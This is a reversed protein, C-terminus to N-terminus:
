DILLKKSYLGNDNTLVRLVYYGKPLDSIDIHSDGISEKEIQKVFSGTITYISIQLITEDCEIAFYDTAPNPYVAIAANAVEHEIGVKQEPFAAVYSYSSNYTATMSSQTEFNILTGNVFWGSCTDGNENIPKQLILTDILTGYFAYAELYKMSNPLNVWELSSNNYFAMGNVKEVGENLTLEALKNNTFTYDYVTNIGGPITLSTLSNNAFALPKVLASDPLKLYSINNNKFASEEILKMGLPLIVTDIKNNNFASVGISVLSDPFVVKGILNNGFAMASISDTNKPIVLEEIMNDFFAQMGIYETSVPLLLRTIGCSAFAGEAFVKVGEPIFDVVLSSGGYGTVVTKNLTGDTNVAYIIGNTAEGNVTAIKNNNFVSTGLLVSGPITIDTINNSWFAYSEVNIVTAPISVQTFLNYSFAGAGIGAVSAPINFVVLNNNGFAYDGITEIGNGIAVSDINKNYFARYGISKITIGNIVAPIIIKSPATGVGSYHYTSIENDTITVDNETITYQSFGYCVLLTLATLVYLKKFSM